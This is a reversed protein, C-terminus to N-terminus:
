EQVMAVPCHGELVAGGVESGGIEDVGGLGLASVVEVVSEELIMPGFHAAAVAVAAPWRRHCPRCLAGDRSATSAGFM